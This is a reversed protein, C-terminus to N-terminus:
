KLIGYLFVAAIAIPAIFKCVFMFLGIYNVKITGEASLEEQVRKKGLHWGIFATILLGGLPMLISATTWDLFDFFNLNGIKFGAWPGMALSSPIGILTIIAAVLVTATRRSMKLEEVTYSVVVELISMASTLAAIALLLFFLAAFISGGPMKNFVNPLTVFVLGPGSDPEINFAFVAPFIALGALLAILTDSITVQTAIKGLSERKKIYSGYTLMTGMGLSLSFFAHGLAILVGQATVESFDPNFLFEVGRLGGPLTLSRACLILIIGLLMPMLIKSYKEIGDKIGSIVILATIAMFIVQWIIPRWPNSIFGAFTNEIEQPGMGSFAGSIAKVIYELTWGAVVGYYALIMFASAAGMIGVLFWPTGPALEKFAGVANKQSRRGIIFEALMVPLGIVAICLLYIIIFAAGGNVGTIYPFKWINGLGIASGAAAAIIGLRSGFTDREKNEFNNNVNQGSENAKENMM